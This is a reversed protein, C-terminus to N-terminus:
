TGGEGEWRLVTMVVHYINFIFSKLSLLLVFWGGGIVVFMTKLVILKETKSAGDDGFLHSWISHSQGFLLVFACFFAFMLYYMFVRFFVCYNYKLWSMKYEPHERKQMQILLEPKSIMAFITFGALLFGLVNLSFGFVLEALRLIQDKIESPPSSDLISYAILIFCIAVAVV